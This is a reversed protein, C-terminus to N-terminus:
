RYALKALWLTILSTTVVIVWDIAHLPTYSLLRAIVPIQIVLVGFILTFAAIIKAIRTQLGTFGITIAASTFCLETLVLGRAHDADITVFYMYSLLVVLTSYFGTALLTLWERTNFFQIHQRRNKVPELIGNQPLDQFVLMSTPHIILEIFVIHIPYYLIPFGLLPIIAASFVFPMHIILLYKFSSQLNKFLQRGEAIAQVISNFNDDLLIIDAVERASQTGREGMAIGIDSAKLAPVDNVGDGTMAVIEDLEHLTHIIQMKHSPIARAIVDIDRLAARGNIRLYDDIEVGLIVRPHGNGLGIENAIARATEPHDGTIMLVHINGQQCMRLAAAVEKRPPDTFTLLGAFEYNSEPETLASTPTITLHACAIVKHGKAAFESIRHMWTSQDASTLPCLSLITEPAGKTTIHWQNDSTLTIATERKRNETFPFTALRTLTKIKKQECSVLIAQDLLDGSETRSSLAAIELVQQEDLTAVPIVHTLQLFGETITGTKDSCIISVRGINEVSVARRVLANKLALRYVGVGLFFTFVVPFEDPLAAIALTAASLIADILGFGQLYRVVALIICLGSAALILTFVLRAIAGQLPTREQTTTLASTVIEGYLTEKGTSIVRLMARGTLVRTGAFGWHESAIAPDTAGTPLSSMPIKKAPQSEGTLTSEDVQMNEGAIILGDAPFPTGTPVIVLDGPVIEISPITVEIKDRIVLATAALRSSLAHTSVETRWHLFADMGILPITALFLIIAQNYNKLLTFLIGTIILFWIMPDKATDAVLTAWRNSRAEIIDNDGYQIRRQEVETATLNWEPSLSYNIRALRAVHRM